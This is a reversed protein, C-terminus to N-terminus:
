LGARSLTAAFELLEVILRAEGKFRCEAANGAGGDGVHVVCDDAVVFYDTNDSYARNFLTAIRSLREALLENALARHDSM